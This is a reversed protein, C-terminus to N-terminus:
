WAGVFWELVALSIAGLLAVLVALTGTLWWRLRADAGGIRAALFGGAAGLIGLVIAGGLVLYFISGVVAAWTSGFGSTYGSLPVPFRYVLAVVAAAVPAAAVAIM